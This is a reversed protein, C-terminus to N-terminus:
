FLFISWGIREEMVILILVKDKFDGVQMKGKLGIREEM